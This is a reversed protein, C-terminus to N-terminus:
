GKGSEELRPPLVDGLFSRLTHAPDISIELLELLERDFRELVEDYAGGAVPAPEILSKLKSSCGACGKLLHAIVAAGEQRSSAGSAFRQLTEQSLHDV